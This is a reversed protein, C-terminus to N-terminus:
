LVPMAFITSLFALFMLTGKYVGESYFGAPLVKAYNDIQGDDFSDWHLIAFVLTAIVFALISIIFGFFFGHNKLGVCNNIWPCHHDFRDVCRNCITCHRSRPTRIV